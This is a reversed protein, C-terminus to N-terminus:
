EHDGVTYGGLASTMASAAGATTVSLRMFRWYEPVEAIAAAVVAGGINIYNTGDVTGQLTVSWGVFTGAFQVRKNTINDTRKPAGNGTTPVGGSLPVDFSMSGSLLGRM